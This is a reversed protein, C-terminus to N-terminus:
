DVENPNEMDKLWQILDEKDIGISKDGEFKLLIYNSIVIKELFQFVRDDDILTIM